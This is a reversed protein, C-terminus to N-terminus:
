QKVGRSIDIFGEYCVLREAMSSSFHDECIILLNNLTEGDVSCLFFLKWNAARLNVEGRYLNRSTNNLASGLTVSQTVHLFHLRKM